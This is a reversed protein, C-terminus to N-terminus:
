PNCEEVKSEFLSALECFLAIDEEDISNAPEGIIVLEGILHHGRYFPVYVETRNGTQERVVGGRVAALSHLGQGFPVVSSLISHGARCLCHFQGNSALYVGAYRYDPVQEFLSRISFDYLKEIDGDLKDSVVGIEARLDDLLDAKRM